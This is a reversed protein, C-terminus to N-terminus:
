ALNWAKKSTQPNQLYELLSPSGIIYYIYILVKFVTTLLRCQETIMDFHQIFLDYLGVSCIYLIYFCKFSVSHTGFASFLGFFFFLDM